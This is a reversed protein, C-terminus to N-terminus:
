IENNKDKEILALIDTAIEEVARSTVDITKINYKKYISKAYLLEKNIQSRNSYKEDIWGMGLQRHKRIEELRSPDVLLGIILANKAEFMYKPLEMNLIIPINATKIGRNALYISTPTKSTRSIGLLIVEAEKLGQPLQGDDHLLSYNIAKQRKFYNEDLKHQASVLRNPSIELYEEFINLLPNLVACCPVKIKECESELYESLVKNVMTYVVIGKNKNIKKIILDLNEKNRVKNYIFEVAIVNKPYQAAVARALSLLTEGTADSILHLNYQM